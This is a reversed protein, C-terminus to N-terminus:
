QTIERIASKTHEQIKQKAKGGLELKADEAIIDLGAGALYCYVLSAWYGEVKAIQNKIYNNYPLSAFLSHLTEKFNELDSNLLTNKVDRITNLDIQLTQDDTPPDLNEEKQCSTILLALIFFRLLNKM